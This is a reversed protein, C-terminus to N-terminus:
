VLLGPWDITHFTQGLLHDDDVKKFNLAPFIDKAMAAVVPLPTVTDHIGQFIWVPVAVKRHQYPLFESFNLAPALLIMRKVATENEMAFITAMLGGFSSGVLIIDSQDTLVDYLKAMRTQLNGTFDSVLM